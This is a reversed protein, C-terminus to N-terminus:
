FNYTAGFSLRSLDAKYATSPIKARGLSEYQLRLSVKQNLLFQGGFGIILDDPIGNIENNHLGVGLKGFLNLNKEVPLTGVAVASLISQSFGVPGTGPVNISADGIMTYGVEGALNPLFRYGGSITLADPSSVPRSSSMNLTGYDVAGYYTHVSQALVPAAAASCLLAAALLKKM